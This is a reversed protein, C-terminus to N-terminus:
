VCFETGGGCSIFIFAFSQAFAGTPDSVTLTVAYGSGGNEFYMRSTTQGTGSGGDGFDWDYNLPTGDADSSCSADFEVFLPADGSTPTAFFCATPVRNARINTANLLAVANNGEDAEAVANLPDVIWGLFHNGTPAGAPILVGVNATSSVGANLTVTSSGVLTDATTVNRDASLYFRVALLSQNTTGRNSITFPFGVFANRDTAGPAAGVDSIGAGTRRFISAALDRSTFATGYGARNGLTDDAHPHADNDAGIVGSNPYFANMTAMVDNEHDLGFAHGHEHIGVLTSNFPGQPHPPAPSVANDWFTPFGFLDTPNPNFVIDAEELEARPFPWIPCGSRRTQTVALANGWIWNAPAAIVISNRGDNTAWGANPSWTHQIQYNAGPSNTNWITRMADVSAQWASGNPFSVLSPQFTVNSHDWTVNGRCNWIYQYAAAPAAASVLALGALIAPLISRRTSM